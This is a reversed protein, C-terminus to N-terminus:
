IAKIAVVINHGLLDDIRITIYEKINFVGCYKIPSIIQLGTKNYYTSFIKYMYVNKINRSERERCHSGKKKNINQIINGNAFWFPIKNFFTHPFNM